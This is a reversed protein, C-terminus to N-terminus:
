LWSKIEKVSPIKGTLKIEEDIIVAPTSMVGRSVIEKMDEVKIIDAKVGTKELEKKILEITKQCKPCGGGLVEIKM